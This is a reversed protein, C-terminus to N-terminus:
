NWLTILKVAVASQRIQLFCGPCPTATAQHWTAVTAGNPRSATRSQFWVWVQSAPLTGPSPSTSTSAGESVGATSRTCCGAAGSRADTLNSLVLIHITSVRMLIPEVLVIDLQPDVYAQLALVSGEASRRSCRTTELLENWSTSPVDVMDTGPTTSTRQASPIRNWSPSVPGCCTRDTHPQNQTAGRGLTVRTHVRLCNAEGVARPRLRRPTNNWPGPALDGRHSREAAVSDKVPVLGLSPVGAPHWAESVYEGIRRRVRGSYKTHM